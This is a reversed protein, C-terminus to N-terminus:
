VTQVGSPYECLVREIRDEWANLCLDPGLRAGQSCAVELLADVSRLSATLRATQPPAESIWNMTSFSGPEACVRAM